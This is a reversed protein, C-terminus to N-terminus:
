LGCRNWVEEKSYHRECRACYYQSTETVSLPDDCDPCYIIIPDYKSIKKKIPGNNVKKM